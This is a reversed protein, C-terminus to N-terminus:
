IKLEKGLNMLIIVFLCVLFGFTMIFKKFENIMHTIMLILEGIGQTKELMFLLILTNQIVICTFNAKYNIMGETDHMYTYVRDVANIEYPTMEM